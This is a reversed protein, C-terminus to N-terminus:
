KIYYLMYYVVLGTFSVYTWVPFLFRVIKRHKEIENKLAFRFALFIFPLMVVALIIHPVLIVLYLIYTWDHRSYAVSGVQYHHWLYVILFLFSSVFALSMFTRHWVIKKSKISLEEHVPPKYFVWFSELERWPYM